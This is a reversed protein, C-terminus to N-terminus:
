EHKRAFDIETTMVQSQKDTPPIGIGISKLVDDLGIEKNIEAM